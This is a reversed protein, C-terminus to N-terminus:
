KAPISCRNQLEAALREDLGRNDARCRSPPSGKRKMPRPRAKASPRVQERPLRLIRNGNPACLWVHAGDPQARGIFTFSLAPTEVLYYEPAKM